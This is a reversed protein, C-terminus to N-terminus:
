GFKPHFLLCLSIHSQSMKRNGSQDESTVENHFHLGLSLHPQSEVVTTM